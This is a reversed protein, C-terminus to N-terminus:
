NEMDKKQQRECLRSFESEGLKYEISGTLLLEFFKDISEHATKFSVRKGDEEDLEKIILDLIWHKLHGYKDNEWKM